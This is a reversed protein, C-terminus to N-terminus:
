HLRPTMLIKLYGDYVFLSSSRQGALQRVIQLNELSALVSTVTRTPLKLAQAAAPISACARIQLYQHVRVATATSRPLAEIRRRDADFLELMERLIQCNQEATELVGALIFRLLSEWDGEARVKRLMDYYDRRHKNFYSCLFLVPEGLAGEACLLLTVLLRALRGNGDRFPHITVFQAHALAAKILAPTRVPEDHIFRELASMCEAVREPPPPIFYAERLSAGGFWTASRRLQGRTEAAGCEDTLMM